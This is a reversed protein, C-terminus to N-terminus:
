ILRTLWGHTDTLAGAPRRSFEWCPNLHPLAVARGGQGGEGCLSVAAKGTGRRFLEMAAHLAIRAGSAGVPHGVAMAGGHLNCRDAPIGLERLSQVAVAAFAENIEVFDLDETTWGARALAAKTANSPQSHLLNDPGAVQGSPGVVALIKCKLREANARTTLIFAAAGDSLPSANGATISGGDTFAPRL